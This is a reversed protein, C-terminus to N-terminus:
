HLKYIRRNVKLSSETGAEVVTGTFEHGLVVGDPKAGMKGMEGGMYHIDSGCIGSLFFKGKIHNQKQM